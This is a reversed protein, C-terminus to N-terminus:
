NRRRHAKSREVQRLDLAHGVMVVHVEVRQSFTFAGQIGHDGVVVVGEIEQYGQEVGLSKLRQVVGGVLDVM